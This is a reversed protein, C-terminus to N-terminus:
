NLDGVKVIYGLRTCEEIMVDIEEETYPSFDVPGNQAAWTLVALRLKEERTLAM